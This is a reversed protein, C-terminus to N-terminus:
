FLRTAVLPETANWLGTMQNGSGSRTFKEVSGTATWKVTVVQQSDVSVTATDDFKLPVFANSIPKTYTWSAKFPMEFFYYFIRGRWPVAWWGLLWQPLPLPAPPPGSAFLEIDVWGRLTEGKENKVIDSEQTARKRKIIDFGTSKGGQGGEATNWLGDAFDLSVGQHLRDAIEFIDGFKPRVGPAPTIWAHSKGWAELKKDLHFQGLSRNKQAIGIGGAYLAVFSNCSTLGPPPDARFVPPDTGPRAELGWSVKLMSQTIASLKTFLAATMGISRVEGPFPVVQALYVRARERIDM